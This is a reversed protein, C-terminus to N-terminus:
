RLGCAHHERHESFVTDTDSPQRMGFYSALDLDDPKMRRRDALTQRGLDCGRCRGHTLYTEILRRTHRLGDIPSTRQVKQTSALKSNFLYFRSQSRQQFIAFIKLSDLVVTKFREKGCSALSRSSGPQERPPANPPPNIVIATATPNTSVRRRPPRPTDNPDERKNM